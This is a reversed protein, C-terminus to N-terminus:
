AVGAWRWITRAIRGGDAPRDAVARVRCLDAQVQVFACGQTELGSRGMGAQIM